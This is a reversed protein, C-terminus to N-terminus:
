QGVEPASELIDGYEDRTNIIATDIWSLIDQPGELKGDLIEERLIDLDRLLDNICMRLQAEPTEVYLAQDLLETFNADM